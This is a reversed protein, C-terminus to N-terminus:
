PMFLRNIYYTFNFPVNLGIDYLKRNYQDSHYKLVTIETDVTLSTRNAKIYRREVVCDFANGTSMRRISSARAVLKPEGNLDPAQM